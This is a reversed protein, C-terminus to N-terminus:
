AVLLGQKKNAKRRSQFDHRYKEGFRRNVKAPIYPTVDCFIYSKIVQEEKKFPSTAKFIMESNLFAERKVRLDAEKETFM